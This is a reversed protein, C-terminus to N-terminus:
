IETGTLEKLAAYVASDVAFRDYGRVSAPLDAQRLAEVAAVRLDVSESARAAAVQAFLKDVTSIRYGRLVIPFNQGDTM